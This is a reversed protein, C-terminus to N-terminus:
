PSAPMEPNFPNWPIMPRLPGAPALPFFPSGAIKLGSKSIRGPSSTINYINKKKGSSKSSKFKLTQDKHFNILILKIVMFINQLFFYNVYHVFNYYM